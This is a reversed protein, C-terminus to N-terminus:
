KARMVATIIREAPTAWAALMQQSTVLGSLLIAISIMEVVDLLITSAAIELLAANVRGRVFLDGRSRIIRFLLSDPM